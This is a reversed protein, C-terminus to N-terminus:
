RLERPSQDIMILDRLMWAEAEIAAGIAAAEVTEVRAESAAANARTKIVAAAVGSLYNITTAIAVSSLGLHEVRIM